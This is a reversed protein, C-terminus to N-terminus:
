DRRVQALERLISRLYPAVHAGQYYSSLLFRGSRDTTIFTPAAEPSITGNRALGGSDPDVQYSSIEPVNRHGVYLVKRDPSIALASPGGSVPAESQLTLKGTAADLTFVLIKDDDQLSVYMYNPM